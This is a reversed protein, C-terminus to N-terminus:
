AIINSGCPSRTVPASCMSPNATRTWCPPMQLSYRVPGWVFESKECFAPLKQKSLKEADATKEEAPTEASGEAAKEAEEAAAHEKQRDAEERELRIQEMESLYHEDVYKPVGEEKILGDEIWICRDCIQEIQGM